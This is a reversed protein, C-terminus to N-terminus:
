AEPKPTQIPATQRAKQEEIEALVDLHRAMELLQHKVDLLSIWKATARADNAQRRYEAAKDLPPVFM